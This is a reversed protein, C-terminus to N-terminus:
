QIIIRGSAAVRGNEYVLQVFYVGAAWRADTPLQFQNNGKSTQLDRRSMETGQLNLIRATRKGPQDASFRLKVLSGRQVLSPYIAFAVRDFVSRNKKFSDITINLGSVSCSFGGRCCTRKSYCSLVVEECTKIERTLLIEQEKNYPLTLDHNVLQYGLASVTLEYSASSKLKDTVAIGNNDAALM